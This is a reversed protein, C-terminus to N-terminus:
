IFKNPHNITLKKGFANTSVFSYCVFRDSADTFDYVYQM